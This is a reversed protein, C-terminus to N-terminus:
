CAAEGLSAQMDAAIERATSGDMDCDLYVIDWWLEGRFLRVLASYEPGVPMNAPFAHIGSVEFRGFSTPVALPGSYSLATAGMRFARLKFIAKMMGPSLSYALYREGSRGAAHTREQIEQALAWFGGETGVTATFRFMTLLCGLQADQVKSRLRGRLDAFVVHRLPVRAPQRHMPYLRRQVALMMGASLISNLTIRRRRSAKQLAETLDAPFRVPLLCARGAEAIKPKRVGRSRWRFDAEDAMQRGMYATTARAFGLGKFGDPYLETPACAGESALEADDGPVPAGACLALFEGFFRVASTADLIAHHLTVVLDGGGRGQLYLCRAPPGQALDLRRHLEDQARAIWGEGDPREATELAIPPAADFHFAYGDGQPLISARLLPHRRQLRDLAARVSAAPLVGDIRLVAVVNFPTHADTICMAHELGVLKRSAPSPAGAGDAGAKRAKKV